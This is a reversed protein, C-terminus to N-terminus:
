CISKNREKEENEDIRKFLANLIQICGYVGIGIIMIEIIPMGLFYRPVLSIMVLSVWHISNIYM